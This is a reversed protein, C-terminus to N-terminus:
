QATTACNHCLVFFRLLAIKYITHGNAIKDVSRDGNALYRAFVYYQHASAIIKKRNACVARVVVSLERQAEYNSISQSTGQMMSTEAETSSLRQTGWCEVWYRAPMHFSNVVSYKNSLLKWLETSSL